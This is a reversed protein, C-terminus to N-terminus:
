IKETHYKTLITHNKQQPLFSLKLCSWYNITNLPQVLASKFLKVGKTYNKPILFVITLLQNWTPTNHKTM